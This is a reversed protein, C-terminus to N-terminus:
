LVSRAGLINPIFLSQICERFCCFVQVFYMFCCSELCQSSLFCVLHATRNSQSNGPQLAPLSFWSPALCTGETSSVLIVTWPGHTPFWRPYFKCSLHWLPSFKVSVSSWLDEWPGRHINSLTSILAHMHPFCGLSSFFSGSLTLHVLHQWDCLALCLAQEWWGSGSADYSM